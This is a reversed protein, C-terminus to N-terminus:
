EYTAAVLIQPLLRWGLRLKIQLWGLRPKIQLWGLRLKIQL